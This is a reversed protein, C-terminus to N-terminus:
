FSKAWQAGLMFVILGGFVSIAINWLAATSDGAKMLHVTEMAFTSFTTFAGLFGITLFIKIDHSLLAKEEALMVLLGMLFCGILNVMITGIPFKSGLSQHMYSSVTYRAMTGLSGGAILMIWKTM